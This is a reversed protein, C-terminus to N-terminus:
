KSNRENNVEGTIFAIFLVMFIIGSFVFLPSTRVAGTILLSMGVFFLAITTYPYKM